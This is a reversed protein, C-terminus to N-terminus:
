VDTYPLIFTAAVAPISLFHFLFEGFLVTWILFLVESHLRPRLYIM